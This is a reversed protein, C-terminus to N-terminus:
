RTRIMLTQPANSLSAGPVAKGEKLWEMIRRRDPERTFRCLADPIEKDDILVVKPVGARISLTAEALELKKIDASQMLKFLLEKLSDSRRELRTLRDQLRKMRDHLGAILEETEARHNVVAACFEHLGTSGELMDSLLQYDDELEPWEHRLAAIQNLIPRPDLKM